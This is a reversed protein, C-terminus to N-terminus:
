CLWCSGMWGKVGVGVQVAQEKLTPARLLSRNYVLLPTNRALPQSAQLLLQGQTTYSAGPLPSAATIYVLSFM